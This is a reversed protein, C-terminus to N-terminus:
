MLAVVFSATLASHWRVGVKWKQPWLKMGVEKPFLRLIKCGPFEPTLLPQFIESQKQTHGTLKSCSVHPSVLSSQKPASESLGAGGLWRTPSIHSGFLTHSRTRTFLGTQQAQTH